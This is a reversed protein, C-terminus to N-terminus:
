TGPGDGGWPTRATMIDGFGDRGPTRDIEAGIARMDTEVKDVMRNVAEGDNSPSEIEVWTRIGELIEDPDVKPTNSSKDTM